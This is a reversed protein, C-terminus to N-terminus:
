KILRYLATSAPALPNTVTYHGSVMGPSSTLNTWGTGLSSRAQLTCNSVANTWSLVVNTGVHNISLFVGATLNLTWGQSISGASGSADDVVFLNWTGNAATNKFVSLSSPANSNGPPAPAPFSYPLRPYGLALYGNAPRFTGSSLRTFIPLANAADDDLTLTVNTISLQNQGGVESMLIAAQGGPGVLLVSIDSPFQHTVDQLTVTLKSLVLGDQGTVTISSPYPAAITPPNDGDAITIFNTNSFSVPTAFSNIFGWFAVVFVLWWKWTSIPM